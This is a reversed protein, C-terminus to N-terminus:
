MCPRYSLLHINSIGHLPPTLQRWRPGALRPHRRLPFDRIHSPPTHDHTGRSEFWLNAVSAIAPLPQPRRVMRKYTPSAGCQRARARRVTTSTQDHSGSSNKAGPRVPRSVTPRLKFSSEVLEHRYPLSYFAFLPPVTPAPTKYKIRRSNICWPIASQAELTHLRIRILEVTVRRTTFPSPFPVWYRPNFSPWGTGPPYLYLSRAELHPLRSDSVTFHPRSDQPVRVQSHIRQRPGAAITFSLGM